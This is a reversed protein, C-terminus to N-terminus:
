KSIADNFLRRYEEIINNIRMLGGNQHRKKACIDLIKMALYHYFDGFGLNTWMNKKASYNIKYM